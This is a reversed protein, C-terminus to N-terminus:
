PLVAASASRSPSRLALTKFQLHKILWTEHTRSLASTLLLLSIWRLTGAIDAHQMLWAIPNALLFVIVAAVLGGLAIVMFGANYDQDAPDKKAAISHRREGGM